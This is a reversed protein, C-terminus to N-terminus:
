VTSLYISFDNSESIVRFKMYTPFQFSRSLYMAWTCEWFKAADNLSSTRAKEKPHHAKCRCCYGIHSEPNMDCSCIHNIEISCLNFRSVNWYMESLCECPLPPAATKECFDLMEKENFHHFTPCGKSHIPFVVVRGALPSCSPMLYNIHKCTMDHSGLHSCSAVGCMCVKSISWLFYCFCASVSVSRFQRFKDSLALINAGCVVAMQKLVHAFMGTSSLIGIISDKRKFECKPFNM